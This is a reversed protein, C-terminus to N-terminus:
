RILGDEIMRELVLKSSIIVIPLGTGPITSAGVYYVNKYFKDKNQPRLAGVQNLGHALGLGSGRYLNFMNQWDIPDYIVKVDIFKEIEIGIRTSLDLLISQALEERDSWDPKFRLDPVPCLIFVSEGDVPACEPNFKSLVNVYYYPKQPSISSTFIKSAYGEFNSGLFYNHHDLNTLKTKLGLYITFPAMTWDMKDLKKEDFRKNRLVKGRFFAADSNIVFYDAPYENGNRDILAQVKSNKSHFDIIETNYIFKVNRRKLEEVIFEVLKYMGGEINWYGNHRMETYNLLTYIAPTKFPTSGLFFAVLSFIIRLEQSEFTRSVESWVSKFLYPIHKKPVKTLKLLYDFKSRFNTRIVHSETDHFFQGAKNLFKKVKEELNSEIGNFEEQLKKLDKYIRFPKKHWEFFVSYLPDLSTLKLKNEVETTSFLEELEYTMSMFSPGIDFTYGNLKLQNLRGGPTSHKEIFTIEFPFKSLRLATSLGGLGSGVIVVKRM